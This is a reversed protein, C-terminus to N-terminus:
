PTGSAFGPLVPKLSTTRTQFTNSDCEMVTPSSFLMEDRVPMDVARWAIEVIKEPTALLYQEARMRRPDGLSVLAIPHPRTLLHMQDTHRYVRSCTRWSCNRDSRM